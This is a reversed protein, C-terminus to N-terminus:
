LKADCFKLCIFCLAAEAALFGCPFFFFSIFFCVINFTTGHANTLLKCLIWTLYLLINLFYFQAWKVSPSNQGCSNAAVHPLEVLMTLLLDRASILHKLVNNICESITQVHAHASKMKKCTSLRHLPIFNRLLIYSQFSNIISDTWYNRLHSNGWVPKSAATGRWQDMWIGGLPLLLASLAKIKMLYLLLAALWQHVGRFFDHCVLIYFLKDTSIYIAFFLITTYSASFFFYSFFLISSTFSILLLLYTCVCTLLNLIHPLLSTPLISPNKAHFWSSQHWQLCM